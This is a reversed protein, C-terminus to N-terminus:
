SNPWAIRCFHDDDLGFRAGEGHAQEEKGSAPVGQSLNRVQTPLDKRARGERAGLSQWESQLATRLIPM